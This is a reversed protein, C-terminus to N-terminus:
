FDVWTGVNEATAKRFLYEASVVDEVALGLSKFLTIETPSTRGQKTGVVLEGIEAVISEPTVAGEQAALVYDGAENLISERRDTFVRAAAMTATDIERSQPSHTGIANIHAGDAIWERKLV